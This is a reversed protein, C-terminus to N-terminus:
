EIESVLQWLNILIIKLTSKRCVYMKKKHNKVFDYKGLKINEFSTKREIMMMMM